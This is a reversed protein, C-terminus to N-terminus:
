IKFLYLQNNGGPPAETTEVGNLLSCTQYIHNNVEHNMLRVEFASCGDMQLCNMACEAHSRVSVSLIATATSIREPVLM